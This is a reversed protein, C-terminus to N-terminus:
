DERGEKLMEMRESFMRIEIGLKRKLGGGPKKTPHFPYEFKKNVKWINEDFM